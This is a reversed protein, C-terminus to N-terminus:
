CYDIWQCSFSQDKGCTLDVAVTDITAHIMQCAVTRKWILDYLKFQEPMLHDKIAEPIDHVSLPVFRKM